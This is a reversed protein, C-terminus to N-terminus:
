WWYQGSPEPIAIPTSIFVALPSLLLGIWPATYKCWYRYRYTYPHIPIYIDQVNRECQQWQSGVGEHSIVIPINVMWRVLLMTFIVTNFAWDVFRAPSLRRVVLTRQWSISEQAWVWCSPFFWFSERSGFLKTCNFCDYVMGWDDGNKYTTHEGNGTMPPINVM